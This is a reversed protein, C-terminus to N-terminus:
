ARRGSPSVAGVRGAGPPRGGAVWRGTSSARPGAIPLDNISAFRRRMLGARHVGLERQRLQPVLPGSDDHWEPLACPLARATLPGCAGQHAPLGARAGVQAAPLRASSAGGVPFEARNRWVTDETSAWWATRTGRTGPTRPWASKSAHRKRPSRRSPPRTLMTLETLRIPLFKGSMVINVRDGAQNPERKLDMKFDIAGAIGDGFEEHILEKFTTGYVSVLEYFRYILPDTPCAPPCAAKTPVVM